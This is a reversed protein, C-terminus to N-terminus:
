RRSCPTGGCPNFILAKSPLEGCSRSSSIRVWRLRSTNSVRQSEPELKIPATTVRCNPVCKRVTEVSLRKLLDSHQLLSAAQELRYATLWRKPSTGTAARFLRVFSARSAGALKALERVRWARAPEARLARLVRAVRLDVCSNPTHPRSHEASMRWDHVHRAAVDM